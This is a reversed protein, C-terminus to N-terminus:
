PVRIIQLRIDGTGTIVLKDNDNIIRIDESGCANRNVDTCIEGAGVARVWIKCHDRGGCECKISFKRENPEIAVYKEEQWCVDDDGNYVFVRLETTTYNDIHFKVKAVAQGAASVLVLALLGALGLRAASRVRTVRHIRADETQGTMQLRGCKKGPETNEM